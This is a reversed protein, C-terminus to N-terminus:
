NEVAGGGRVLLVYNYYREGGEGQPGGEVKTDFRVAGAGHFDLGEGNVARGIALYWAYYYDGNANFRASTSSWYYPYDPSGAENTIDSVSFLPSIAPGALTNDQADPAYTYNAISQLEKINPLRWDNYGLYDAENQAQAYLLASEWDMGEGSDTQAWMLGTTNDTITGDGNDVLDNILYDHGQVCRVIKGRPGGAMAPYAKIHGTAHNVGFAADYGGEVTQGIYYDSSWYQEDKSIDGSSALDFYTQDLYPWGTSFNSISFLEKLSPMRWDEIDALTMSDCYTQAESWSLPGSGPSKEWTLGTINDTVTGNGNDAYDFAEYSFQADQGFFAEGSSPCDISIGDSNFCISQGTGTLKATTTIGPSEQNATESTSNTNTEIPSQSNCAILSFVATLLFLLLFKEFTSFM